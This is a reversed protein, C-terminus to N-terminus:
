KEQKPPPTKDEVPGIVELEGLRVSTIPTKVRVLDDVHRGFVNAGVQALAPLAEVFNNGPSRVSLRTVWLLKSKHDKTRLHNDYAMLIVFYREENLENSMTIEANTPQLARHEKELVRNYGLLVANRQISDAVSAQATARADMAMNMANRDAPTGADVSANYAAAAAQVNEIDFQRNPDEYITTTGWHVMIVLDASGANSAPFYHQKALNASLTRTIDAFTTKVLGSDVTTGDFFRGEAFVYSEPRPGGAPDTPRVYDAIATASVAISQDMAAPLVAPLLVANALFLLRRLTTM